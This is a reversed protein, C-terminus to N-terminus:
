VLAAFARQTIDTVSGTGSIARDAPAQLPDDHAWAAHADVLARADGCRGGRFGRHHRATTGQCFIRAVDDEM